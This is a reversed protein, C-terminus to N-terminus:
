TTRLPLAPCSLVVLSQAGAALAPLEKLQLSQKLCVPCVFLLRIREFLMNVPQKASRLSRHRRHLLGAETSQALDSVRKM